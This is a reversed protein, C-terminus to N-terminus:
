SSPEKSTRQLRDSQRAADQPSWGLSLDVADTLEGYNNYFKVTMTYPSSAKAASFTTVIDCPKLGAPPTLKLPKVLINLQGTEKSAYAVWYMGDVPSYALSSSTQDGAAAAVANSDVLKWGKLYRDLMIDYNGTKKTPM